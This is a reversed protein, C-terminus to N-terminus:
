KTFYNISESGLIILIIGFIAGSSMLLGSSVPEPVPHTLEVGFDMGVPLIAIMAFGTMFCAISVITTNNTWFSVMLLIPM